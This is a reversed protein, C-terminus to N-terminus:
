IDSYDLKLKLTEHILIKSMLFALSEDDIRGYYGINITMVSVKRFM